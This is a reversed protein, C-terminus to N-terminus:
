ENIFTDFIQLVREHAQLIETHIGMIDITNHKKAEVELESALKHLKICSLNGSVGKLSHASQYIQDCLSVVHNDPEGILEEPLQATLETLTNLMPPTDEIFISMLGELLQHNNSVRNLCAKEDWDVDINDEEATTITIDRKTTDIEKYHKNTPIGQNDKIPPQIKLYKFLTTALLDPEIPKAIYDTMGSDLCKQKDGEMANATMAIIPINAFLEGAVGKRIEKTAQYGDMEPMQCDMLILTYPMNDLSDTLSKLAELGNAAIDAQLNLKTLLGLAVQQNIRNDEVLLIRYNAELHNSIKKFTDSIADQTIFTQLYDHTVLHPSLSQENQDLVVALANFLDSTTAPKPFYANFGINSFYDIENGQSISTMMVMKMDDFAKVSRIKKGLDAGNLEPMQMDLFAIDFLADGNNIKEECLKFAELPNDSQTVKAGWHELQGKLVELNTANDDVILINLKNINVSPMVRQSEQSSEILINFEFTSGKGEQSTASIDGNMLHCLQKSIALGLGTGGYKRTTSADVQSFSNFLNSIKNKPIGIGSDQISCNLQLQNHKFHTVNVRIIIEGHQTFKIANGILNTLIQRIRGQDGKVMSQEINTLDLIVELGKTQAKLAMAEAVDGFMGRIDFDCFELTMKGAEIKSFDLIDNILILLSEASSKAINAKHLQEKSLESNILLGLMGLVGNMPTRIEHSMSALFESKLQSNQEAVEKAQELLHQTQEQVIASTFLSGIETLLRIIEDNKDPNIETFLFLVGVSIQEENINHILPVIYHGHHAIEHCSSDNPNDTFCNDSIIIEGNHASKGYQCANLGITEKEKIFSDSFEGHVSCLNLLSREKDLLFVGGKDVLKLAKIKFCEDLALSLKKEISLAQNLIKSIALKTQTTLHNYSEALAQKKRTSIDLVTGIVRSAKGQQDHAVVKGNDHLWVWHGDRHNLRFEIDYNIHQDTIHDELLAIVKPADKPHLLSSFKELTFPALEEPTYGTIEYWRTNCEIVDSNLDWNWYGVGTNNIVLSLQNSNQQIELEQQKLRSIDTSIAIYSKLNLIDDVLPVITTEVWYYDGNKARNCIEGHWIDGNEIISFMSTFYIKPHYGSNVIKHNKGLVEDQSYGSIQSFKQNAFTINKDKDTITVIAHQDLAFKQDNLENFIKQQEIQHKELQQQQESRKEQMFNFASSLKGIEDNTGIEVKINDEGSAIKLSANALDKIPKTIRKTLPFVITVIVFISLIVLVIITKALWNADKVVTDVPIQSVLLWNLNAIKIPQFVGLVLKGNLNKYETAQISDDNINKQKHWLNFAPHIIETNLVSQWDDNIATVLMGKENVIFHSLGNEAHEKTLMLSYLSAIKVQIAVLGVLSGTDNILPSSIFASLLNNSPAYRHVNSLETNSTELSSTAVAAFGTDKYKGTYLNTGLDDEQTLNFLINAQTDILFVDHIYDYSQKMNLLDSRMLDVQKTWQESQIFEKLPQQSTQYSRALQEINIATTKNRAQNNIDKLRYSLWSDIFRKNEISSIKLENTALTILSSRSQLYSLISIFLLPVLTLILFWMMLKHQLSSEKM